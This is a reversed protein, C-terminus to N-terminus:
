PVTENGNSSIDNLPSSPQLRQFLDKKRSTMKTGRSNAASRTGTFIRDNWWKLLEKPQKEEEDEPDEFFNVIFNWLDLYNYGMHSEAWHPADNLAFHLHIAAYAISRPKVDNMHIIQAVNGRCNTATTKKKKSAPLNEVDEPQDKTSSPSTFMLRYVQVLLYSQLFGKDLDDPDFEEDKYFCRARASSAFDYKPGFARVAARVIPDKWDFEVPCLLRGTIDNQLGRSDRSSTRFEKIHELVPEPSTAAPLDTLNDSGTVREAHARLKIQYEKLRTQNIKQVEKNLAEGVFNMVMSTDFSRASNAGRQLQSIIHTGGSDKIKNVFDPYIAKNITLIASYGCQLRQKEELEEAHKEEDIDDDEEEFDGLHYGKQRYEDYQALLTHISEYATILKPIARGRRMASANDVPESMKKRTGQAKWSVNWIKSVNGIKCQTTNIVYSLVRSPNIPLILEVLHHHAKHIAIANEPVVESMLQLLAIPTADGLAQITPTLVRPARPAM